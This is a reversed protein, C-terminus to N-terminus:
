ISQKLLSLTSIEGCAVTEFSEVYTNLIFSIKLERCSQGRSTSKIMGINSNSYKLFVIRLRPWNNLGNLYVSPMGTTRLLPSLQM